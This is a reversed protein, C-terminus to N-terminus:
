NLSWTVAENILDSSMREDPHAANFEKLKRKIDIDKYEDDSDTDAKPEPVKKVEETTAEAPATEVPKPPTKSQNSLTSKSRREEEKIKDEQDKMRRSVERRKVIGDEKEQNWHVIEDLMKKLHIHPVNFHESLQLGYFSKGSGPPGTVLIKVPKLGRKKCFEEKV